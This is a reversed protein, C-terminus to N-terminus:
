KTLDDSLFLSRQILFGNSEFLSSAEESSSTPMRASCACLVFLGARTCSLGLGRGRGKGQGRCGVEVQADQINEERKGRVM